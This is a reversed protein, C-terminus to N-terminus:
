DEYDNNNKQNYTVDTIRFIKGSIAGDSKAIITQKGSGLDPIPRSPIRSKSKPQMTFDKCTFTRVACSPFRTARLMLM